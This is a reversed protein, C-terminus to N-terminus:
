SPQKIIDPFTHTDHKNKLIHLAGVIIGSNKTVVISAKSGFEYKKHEKGKSICYVEPEHLSYIKNQSNQTQSLVKEFIEM